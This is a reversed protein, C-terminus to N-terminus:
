ERSSFFFFISSLGLFPQRPILQRLHESPILQQQGVIRTLHEILKKAQSIPTLGLIPNSTHECASPVLAFHANATLPTRNATSSRNRNENLSHVLDTLHDNEGASLFMRDDIVCRTLVIEDYLRNMERITSAFNSENLLDFRNSWHFRDFLESRLHQEYISRTADAVGSYVVCLEEILSEPYRDGGSSDM